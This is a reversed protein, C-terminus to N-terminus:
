PSCSGACPRCASVARFAILHAEVSDVFRIGLRPSHVAMRGTPCTAMKLAATAPVFTFRYPQGRVEFQGDVIRGLLIGHISHLKRQNGTRGAVQSSLNVAEKLM